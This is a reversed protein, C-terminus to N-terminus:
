NIEFMTLHRTLVWFISMVIFIPFPYKTVFPPRWEPLTCRSSAANRGLCVAQKKKKKKKKAAATALGSISTQRGKPWVHMILIYADINMMPRSMELCNEESWILNSDIAEKFLLLHPFIKNLNQQSAITLLPAERVLPISNSNTSRLSRWYWGIARVISGPTTSLGTTNCALFQKPPIRVKFSEIVAM